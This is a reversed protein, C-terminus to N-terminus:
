SKRSAVRSTEAILVGPIANPKKYGMAKCFKKLDGLRVEITNIGVRGAIVEQLFLKIDTVSVEIDEIVSVTASNIKITKQAEPESSISPTFVQESQQLLEEAKDYNGKEMEKLSKNELKEKKKRDEADAEERAKRDAEAKIRKQERYDRNIEADAIKKAEEFKRTLANEQSCIAKWTDYAKTKMGSGPNAPDAVKFYTEIKKLRQNIDASFLSAMERTAQDVIKLSKAQAVLEVGQKEFHQVQENEM